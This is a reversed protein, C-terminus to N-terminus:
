NRCSTMHRANHKRGTQQIFLSNYIFIHPGRRDPHITQRNTSIEDYDYFILQKQFLLLYTLYMCM